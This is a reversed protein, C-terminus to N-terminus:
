FFNLEVTKAAKLSMIRRANVRSYREGLGWYGIDISWYKRHAVRKM